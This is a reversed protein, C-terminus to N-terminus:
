YIIVQTPHGGGQGGSQRDWSPGGRGRGRWQRGRGRGGQQQNSSFMTM